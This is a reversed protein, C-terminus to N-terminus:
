LVWPTANLVRFTSFRLLTVPLGLHHEMAIEAAMLVQAATGGRRQLPPWLPHFEIEASLRGYRSFYDIREQFYKRNRWCCAPIAQNRKARRMTEIVLYM